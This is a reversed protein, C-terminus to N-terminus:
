MYQVNRFPDKSNSKIFFLTEYKLNDMKKLFNLCYICNQHETIHRSLDSYFCLLEFPLASLSHIHGKRKLVLKLVFYVYMLM